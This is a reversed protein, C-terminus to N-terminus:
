KENNLVMIEKTDEKVDVLIWDDEYIDQHMESNIGRWINPAVTVRDDYRSLFQGWWHFTSNSIIYYKFHTMVSMAEWPKINGSVSSAIYHVEDDFQFHEKAWEIDETFIYIPMQNKGTIGKIKSVAERYYAPTCVDYDNLDLHSELNWKRLGVCIADESEIKYILEKLNLNNEISDVAFDSRLVNKIDSFYRPSEFFGVLLKNNCFSHYSYPYYGMTYIYLGFKQLLKAWKKELVICNDMGPNKSKKSFFLRLLAKQVISMHRQTVEFNDRCKFYQLYNIWTEDINEFNSFDIAIKQNPNKLQIVRAHAYSFMQNGMRGLMEVYIM